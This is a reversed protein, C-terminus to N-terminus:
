LPRVTVTTGPSCDLESTTLPAGHNALLIRVQGAFLRSLVFEVRFDLHLFESLVPAQFTQPVTASELFIFCLIRFERRM